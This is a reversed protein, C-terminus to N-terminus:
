HNASEANESSTRKICDFSVSSGCGSKEGIVAEGLGPKGGLVLPEVAILADGVIRAQRDSALLRPAVQARLRKRDGPDLQLLQALVGGTELLVGVAGVVWGFKRSRPPIFAPLAASWRWSCCPSSGRIKAAHPAFSQLHVAHRLRCRPCRHYAPRKRLSTCLSLGVSLQARRPGRKRSPDVVRVM